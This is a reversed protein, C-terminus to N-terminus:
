ASLLRLTTRMGFCFRGPQASDTKGIRPEGDTMVSVEPMVAARRIEQANSLRKVLLRVRVPLSVKAVGGATM